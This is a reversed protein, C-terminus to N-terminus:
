QRTIQHRPEALEAPEGEAEEEEEEWPGALQHQAARSQERRRGGETLGLAPLAACPSSRWPLKWLRTRLEPTPALGRCGSGGSVGDRHRAQVDNPLPSCMYGCTGVLAGTGPPASSSASPVKWGLGSGLHILEWVCWFWFM